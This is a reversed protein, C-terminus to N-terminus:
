SQSSIAATPRISCSPSHCFFLELVYMRYNLGEAELQWHQKTLPEFEAKVILGFNMDTVAVPYIITIMVIFVIRRRAVWTSCRLLTTM